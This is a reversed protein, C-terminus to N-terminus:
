ETIHKLIYNRAYFTNPHVLSRKGLLFKISSDLAALVAGDIDDMALQRIYEVGPFSRSPEVVDALFVIKELLTMDEKGTTHFRVASIIEEDMINFQNRIIYEATHAHLLEKIGYTLEDVQTNLSLMMKHQLEMDMERTCDHLLASVYAKQSDAGYLNALQEASIAANESHIYRKESLTKKLYDKMIRNDIM